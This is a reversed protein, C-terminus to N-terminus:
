EAPLAGALRNVFSKAADIFDPPGLLEMPEDLLTMWILFTISWPGVTSVLCSNEGDPAVTVSDPAVRGRIAAATAQVRIRAPAADLGGSRGARAQVFAAPDGGPVERPRGRDARRVEGRIRDLRFVRWDQRDLDFAVLYWNFGSHVLAAPEAYRQSGAGATYAFRVRQSDRCAAALTALVEVDTSPGGLPVASTAAGLARVRKRLREPLVQDLKTLASVSTEEIGAISTAAVTRLGIAVAVAEADDLLLPPMRTGPALRYGGAVGRTAHVPYGLERLKDVDRRITRPDVDFRDALEQGTWERRLQLLSLLALLRASPDLM